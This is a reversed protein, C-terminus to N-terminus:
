NLERVTAIIIKGIGFLMLSIAAFLSLNYFVDPYQNDQPQTPSELVILYKLQRYAEIRAKELSIQSSTYAQLALELAIKYDTYKALVESISGPEGTQVQESRNQQLSLRERELELQQQLATIQMKLLLVQPATETMVALLTKLEAQMSAVQGELKYTIQQFAAGEAEPDLLNYHQQFNLLNSKAGELRVEVLEHENKIFKLQADALQHGISNIYWESREVLLRNLKHAFESNYAQVYFTIVSSKEDIEVKVHQEYYSFLDEQSAEDHLRSFYDVDYSNYHTVMDLERQLYDIMDQSYLYAKVLELDASAPSSVGLGSLLAMSADMTAMGDPQQVILQARSEFRPSAWVTQYFAFILFPVLLFLVWPQKAKQVTKNGLGKDVANKIVLFKSQKWDVQETSSSKMVSDQVVSLESSFDALAAKVKPNNPKLVIARQLVRRALAIDEKKLNNSILILKEVSNWEKQQTKQKLQNFRVEVKNVASQTM